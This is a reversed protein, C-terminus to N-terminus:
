VLPLWSLPYLSQCLGDFLRPCTKFFYLLFAKFNIILAYSTKLLMALNYQLKLHKYQLTAYYNGNTKNSAVLSVIWFFLSIPLTLSFLLALLMILINNQM